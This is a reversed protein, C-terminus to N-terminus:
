SRITVGSMRSDFGQFLETKAHKSRAGADDALLRYLTSRGIGLIAAARLKNGGENDLVRRAYRREVEALPLGLPDERAIVPMRLGKPLDHVDLVEHNTMM